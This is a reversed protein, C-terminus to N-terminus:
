ALAEPHTELYQFAEGLVRQVTDMHDTAHIQDLTGLSGELWALLFLATLNDGDRVTQKLKSYPNM